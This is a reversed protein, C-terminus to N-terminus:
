ASCHRQWISALCGRHCCSWRIPRRVSAKLTVSKGTWRALTDLLQAFDFPKSLYGNMGAALCHDWHELRTYASMAIIPLLRCRPDARISRTTQYGDVTPLQLDMLVIDYGRQEHILYNIAEGGDEALEVTVGAAQLLELMAQRNLANDEVVLVRLGELHLPVVPHPNVM